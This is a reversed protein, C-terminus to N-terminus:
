KASTGHICHEREVSFPDIDNNAPRGKGKARRRVRRNTDRRRATLGDEPLHEIREPSPPEREITVPASEDDSTSRRTEAHHLDRWFDGADDVTLIKHLKQISAGTIQDRVIGIKILIQFPRVESERLPRRSTGAIM